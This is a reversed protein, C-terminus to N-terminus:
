GRDIEYTSSLTNFKISDKNVETVATVISTRFFDFGHLSKCIFSAGEQLISPSNGITIIFERKEGIVRYLSFKKLNTMKVDYIDGVIYYGQDCEWAKSSNRFYQEKDAAIHEVLDGSELMVLRVRIKM